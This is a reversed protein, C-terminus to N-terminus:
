LGAQVGSLLAAGAIRGLPSHGGRALPRLLVALVRRRHPVSGVAQAARLRVEEGGERRLEAGLRSHRGGERSLDRGVRGDM